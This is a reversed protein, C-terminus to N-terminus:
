KLLQENGYENSMFAIQGAFRAIRALQRQGGAFDRNKEILRSEADRLTLGTAFVSMPAGFTAMMGLFTWVRIFYSMRIM